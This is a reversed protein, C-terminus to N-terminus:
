IGGDAPHRVAFVGVLELEGRHVTIAQNLAMALWGALRGLLLKKSRCQTELVQRWDDLLDLELALLGAALTPELALFVELTVHLAVRLFLGMDAPNGSAVARKRAAVIQISMVRLGVALSSTAVTIHSGQIVGTWVEVRVEPTLKGGITARHVASLKFISNRVTAVKANIAAPIVLRIVWAFDFVM